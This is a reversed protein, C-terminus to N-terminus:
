NKSFSSSDGDASFKTSRSPRSLRETSERGRSPFVEISHRERVLGQKELEAIKIKAALDECDAILHEFERRLLHNEKSYSRLSSEKEALELRVSSCQEYFPKYKDVLATLREIEQEKKLFSVQLKIIFDRQKQIKAIELQEEELESLIQKESPLESTQKTRKWMM